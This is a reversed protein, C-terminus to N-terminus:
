KQKKSSKIKLDGDGEIKLKETETEKLTPFNSSKRYADQFDAHEKKKLDTKDKM